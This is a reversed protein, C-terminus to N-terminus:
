SSQCPMRTQFGGFRFTIVGISIRSSAVAMISSNRATKPLYLAIGNFVPSGACIVLCYTCAIIQLTNPLWRYNPPAPLYAGRGQLLNEFRGFWILNLFTSLHGGAGGFGPRKTCNPPGSGVSWKRYKLNGYLRSRRPSRSCRPSRSRRSRRPSQSRRPPEEALDHGGESLALHKGNSEVLVRFAVVPLALTKRKSLTTRIM